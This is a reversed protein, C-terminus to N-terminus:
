EWWVLEFVRQRGDVGRLQRRGMDDFRMGEVFGALVRTSEALLVQGASARDALRSAINVTLGFFDGSEEIVDGSNIGACVRLRNRLEGQYDRASRQVGAACRIARAASSFAVMFGDGTQKVEFGGHREVQERVLGHYTLLLDRVDGQDARTTFTTFGQLDTFLITVVGGPGPQLTAALARGCQGCFRFGEPMEAGCTPCPELGADFLGADGQNVTRTNGDLM